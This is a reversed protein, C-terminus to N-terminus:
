NVLIIFKLKGNDLLSVYISSGCLEDVDLFFFLM